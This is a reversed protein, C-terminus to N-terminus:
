FLAEFLDRLQRCVPERDIEAVEVLELGGADFGNRGLSESFTKMQIRGLNPLVERVEALEAHTAHPVVDAIQTPM